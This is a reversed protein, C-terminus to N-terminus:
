ELVKACKLLQLRLKVIANGVANLFSFVATKVIVLSCIENETQLCLLNNCVADSLLQGFPITRVTRIAHVPGHFCHLSMRSSRLMNIPIYMRIQM